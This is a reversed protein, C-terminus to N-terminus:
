SSCIVPLYATGVAFPVPYSTCFRRIEQRKQSTMQYKVGGSIQSSLSPVSMCCSFCLVNGCTISSPFKQGLMETYEFSCAPPLQYSTGYLIMTGLRPWPALKSTGTASEAEATANEEVRISFM